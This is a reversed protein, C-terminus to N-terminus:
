FIHWFGGCVVRRPVHQNSIRRSCRDLRRGLRLKLVLIESGATTFRRGHRVMKPRRTVRASTSENGAAAVLVGCQRSQRLFRGSILGSFSRLPRLEYQGCKAKHQVAYYLAAHHELSLRYWERYFAKLPLIKATPAALHVLRFDNNRSWLSRV